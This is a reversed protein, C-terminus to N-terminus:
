AEPAKMPQPRAPYGKQADQPLTSNHGVSTERALYNEVTALSFKAHLTVARNQDQRAKTVGPRLMPLRDPIQAM